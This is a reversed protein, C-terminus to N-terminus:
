ANIITKKALRFDVVWLSKAVGEAMDMVTKLRTSQLVNFNLYGGTNVYGKIFYDGVPETKRELATGPKLPGNGIEIQKVRKLSGLAADVAIIFPNQYQSNIYDIQENLNKAHVPHDLTGYVSVRRLHRKNLLTGTLPGLSDGTSRDSGICLIVVEANSPIAVTIHNALKWSMLPEDSNVLHNISSDAFNNSM